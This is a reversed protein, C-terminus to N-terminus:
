QDTIQPKRKEIFAQMGEIADKTQFALSILDAESQLGQDISHDFSRLVSERAFQLTLLSHQSFNKAFQISEEVVDTSTLRNILGYSLAETASIRQGTMIMELARSQGILRPLRQTGGYGPILGLKVEPLGLSSKETAIRFTCALALELGGGFAFGDIAAISPISLNELKRFAAQGFEIGQRQLKLSKGMLEKVDAGACFAKGGAGTILLARSTTKEVEQFASLLEILTKENLANLAEPRNLTLISFENKRELSIPM